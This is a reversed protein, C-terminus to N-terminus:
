MENGSGPLTNPGPWYSIESFSNCKSRAISPLCGTFLCLKQLFPNSPTFLESNAECFFIAKPKMKACNKHEEMFIGKKIKYVVCTIFKMPSIAKITHCFQINIAMHWIKNENPMLASHLGIYIYLQVLILHVHTYTGYPLWYEASYCVQLYTIM